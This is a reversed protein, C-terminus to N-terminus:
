AFPGAGTSMLRSFSNHNEEVGNTPQTSAMSVESGAIAQPRTNRSQKDMMTATVASTGTPNSEAGRNLSVSDDEFQAIGPFMKRLESRVEDRIKAAESSSITTEGITPRTAGSFQSTAESSDTTM